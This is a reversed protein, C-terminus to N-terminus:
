EPIIENLKLEIRDSPDSAEVRPADELNNAPIFSLLERVIRLAHEDSDAAFHAVGSTRNHTVAGGLEEKTVDAHTVTKIVDPGTIFMYSTDKVMVNFDTIAPSYVAGGACPGLICSIQPIVGSALTNRLFIDAYGGLSRVGEQIRAGGSDNLGIMPAGTKMALDMVKCIKEAHTESLSGGFVTFDQAFVYVLRGNVTGYGTVVGDGYFQQDDMGFDITRHVVLAGIEEFSGPDILLSIRERATLKGKKHQEAIRNKGGGLQGKEIKEKLIEKKSKKM